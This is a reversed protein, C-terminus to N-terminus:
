SAAYLIVCMYSMAITNLVTSACPPSPTPLAWNTLKYNAFNALKGHSILGVFLAILSVAFRILKKMRAVLDASGLSSSLIILFYNQVSNRVLDPKASPHICCRPATLPSSQTPFEYLANFSCRFICWEKMNCFYLYEFQQVGFGSKHRRKDAAVEWRFCM